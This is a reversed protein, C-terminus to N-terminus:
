VDYHEGAIRSAIWQPSATQIDDPVNQGNTIYAAGIKNHVLMNLASGYTSTEDSKTFILQRIPIDNFQDFIEQMDKYRSTLSLVLYTEMSTRFDILKSLEYVYQPDRFNRGATDLLVLDCNAFKHRAEMYDELSYAVEIPIDLLKAYTKLQDIAAIRYTDTTIFAVRKHDNLVARAAVKAITTTKGVGTPGVFHLFKRNYDVGGFTLPREKAELSHLIISKLGDISAPVSEENKKLKTILEDALEPTVEQEFLHDYFKQYPHPHSTTQSTQQKEMLKKLAKIETMVAQNQDSVFAPLQESPPAAIEQRREMKWAQKKPLKDEPDIAAIVEINKKKFLGLFGGRHVVKSNLIVADNGMEKKVQSMVKPMSEAEFKKVKM